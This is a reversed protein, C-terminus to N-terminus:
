IGFVKGVAGFISEWLRAAPNRKTGTVQQQIVSGKGSFFDDFLPNKGRLYSVFTEARVPAYRLHPSFAVTLRSNVRRGTYEPLVREVQTGRQAAFVFKVPGRVMMYRFQLNVWAHLRNWVWRSEIEPRKDGPYALAVLFRPRFVMWRGAPVMVVSLEETADEQSSLTVQGPVAGRNRISTLLFMGAALSSFPYRWDMLWKTQKEDDGMSGQLYDVKTLLVEGAALSIRQAPRSESASIPPVHEVDKGLVIAASRQAFPAVVFFALIKWVFPVLTMLVLLGLAVWALSALQDRVLRDFRDRMARLERLEEQKQALLAAKREVEEESEGGAVRIEKREEALRVLEQRVAKKRRAIAEESRRKEEGQFLGRLKAFWRNLERQQEALDRLERNRVEIEDGIDEAKARLTGLLQETSSLEEMARQLEAERQEMIMPPVTRALFILLLVGFIVAFVVARRGLWSLIM